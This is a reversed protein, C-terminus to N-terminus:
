YYQIFFLYALATIPVNDMQNNLAQLELNNGKWNLFINRIHQIKAHQASLVMDTISGGIWFSHRKLWFFNNWFSHRKWSEIYIQNKKGDKGRMSIVFNLISVQAAKQRTVKSFTFCMNSFHWVSMKSPKIIICRGKWIDV